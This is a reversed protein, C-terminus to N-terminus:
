YKATMVCYPTYNSTKKIGLTNLLPCVEMLLRFIFQTLSSFFFLILHARFTHLSLHYPFIQCKIGKLSIKDFVPDVENTECLSRTIHVSELALWDESL